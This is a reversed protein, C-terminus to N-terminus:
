EIEEAYIHWVLGDPMIVTDVYLGRYVTHGTGHVYFKVKVTEECSATNREFWLDIHYGHGRNPATKVVKVGKHLDVEHAGAIPLQIRLVTRPANITPEGGFVIQNM